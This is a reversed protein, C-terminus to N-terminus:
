VYGAEILDDAHSQSKRNALLQAFAFPITIREPRGQLFDQRATGIVSRERKHLFRPMKRLRLPAVDIFRNAIASVSMHAKDVGIKAPLMGVPPLDSSGGGGVVDLVEFVNSAFTTSVMMLRIYVMLIFSQNRTFCRREAAPLLTDIKM